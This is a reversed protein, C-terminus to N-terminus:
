VSRAADLAALELTGASIVQVVPSVEAIEAGV